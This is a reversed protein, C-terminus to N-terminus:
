ITEIKWVQSIDNVSVFDPQIYFSLVGNREWPMTHSINQGVRIVYQVDEVIESKDIETLKVNCTNKKHIYDIVANAEDLSVYPKLMKRAQAFKKALIHRNFQEAEPTAFCYGLDELLEEVTKM